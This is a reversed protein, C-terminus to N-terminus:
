IYIERHHAKFMHLIPAKLVKWKKTPNSYAQGYKKVILVKSEESISYSPDIFIIMEGFVEQGKSDVILKNFDEVRAPVDTITITTDVGDSDYTINEITIEDMYLARM